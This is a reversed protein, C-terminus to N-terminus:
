VGLLEWGMVTKNGEDDTISKGGYFIGAEMKFFALVICGMIGCAGHVQFAELPDDVQLKTMVLCAVSYTVSGIIGIIVAAWSEVSDCSATIAVLGALIGNTLGQFDMRQDKKEGTIYKRTAFTFLGGSAPALITNMIAREASLYIADGDASVLGLSSGANFCLWGLWLLLTGLVAQQPSNSSFNKNDLKENYSKVFEHVRLIDWEKSMFKQYVQKYGDVLGPSIQNPKIDVDGGARITSFRGLRPGCIVAGTLGAIGGTLHVVGSGAFDSFGMTTLWGGGWTWAVVIPYIIGTMFFSFLLYNNIKVREALSGSVITAATCAFAYQFFWEAYRTEMNYGFFHKKGAFGGDVDGYALGFGWAWFVLGGICADMCNKLLVNQYNKYRVSGSELLAFGSQMFFVIVGAIMMWCMNAGAAVVAPDITMPIEIKTSSM